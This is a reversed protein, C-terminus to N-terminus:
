FLSWTMTEKLAEIKLFKLLFTNKSISFLIKYQFSFITIYKTGQCTLIIVFISVSFM